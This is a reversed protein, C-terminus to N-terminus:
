NEYNEIPSKVYLYGDSSIFGSHEFMRKSVINDKHIEARLDSYRMMECIIDLAAKGIGLRYKDPAVYISIMFPKRGDTLESM